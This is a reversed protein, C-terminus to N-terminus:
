FKFRMGVRLVQYTDVVDKKGSEPFTYTWDGFAGMNGTIKVDVGVGARGILANETGDHLGIGAFVYPSVISNIPLRLVGDVAYNGLTSNKYDAWQALGSLGVYNNFFYDAAIGGGMSNDSDDSPMLYMAYPKVSLGESFYGGDVYSPGTTAMSYSGAFSAGPLVLLLLTLLKKM